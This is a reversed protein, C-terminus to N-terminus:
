LWAMRTASWAVFGAVLWTAGVSASVGAPRDSLRFEMVLLSVSCLLFGVLAWVGEGRIASLLALAEVLAIHGLVVLWIPWLASDEMFPLVWTRVWRPWGPREDSSKM